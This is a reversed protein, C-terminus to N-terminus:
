SSGAWVLLRCYLITVHPMAPTKMGRSEAEGGPGGGVPEPHEDNEWVCGLPCSGFHCGVGQWGLVRRAIGSSYLSLGSKWRQIQWVCDAGLGSYEGVMSVMNLRYSYGQFERGGVLTSTFPYGERGAPTSPAWLLKIQFHGEWSSGREETEIKINKLCTLPSWLGLVSLRPPPSPFSTKVSSNESM